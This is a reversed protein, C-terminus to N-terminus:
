AGVSRACAVRDPPLKGGAMRLDHEHSGVRGIAVLKDHGIRCGVAYRPLEGFLFRTNPIVIHGGISRRDGIRNHM